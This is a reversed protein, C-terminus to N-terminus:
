KTKTTWEISFLILSLLLLILGLLKVIILLSFDNTECMILFLAFLATITGLVMLLANILKTKSLYNM